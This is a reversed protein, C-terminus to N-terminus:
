GGNKITGRAKNLALTAVAIILTKGEGPLGAYYLGVGFISAIIMFVLREGHNNLFNKGWEKM